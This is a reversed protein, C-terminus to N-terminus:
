VARWHSSRCQVAASGEMGGRWGHWDLTEGEDALFQGPVTSIDGGTAPLIVFRFQLTLVEATSASTATFLTDFEGVEIPTGTLEGTLANYLIGPPLGTASYTVNVGNVTAATIPPQRNYAVAFLGPPLSFVNWYFHSTASPAIIM